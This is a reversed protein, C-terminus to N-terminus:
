KDNITTSINSNNHAINKVIELLAKNQNILAMMLERDVNVTENTEPEPTKVCVSKNTHKWLGSRNLFEKDCNKCQYVTKKPPNTKKVNGNVNGLHKPRLTHREWDCKQYCKFNCNKCYYKTLTKLNEMTEMDAGKNHTMTYLHNEMEKVTNFQIQCKDCYCDSKNVYPSVSNLTANLLKYHEHEKIRAETSDKCNYKALEVMDWNDWGGNERIIKYIKTENKL